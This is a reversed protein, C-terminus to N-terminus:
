NSGAEGSMTGDFKGTHTLLLPNGSTDLLVVNLTGTQSLEGSANKFRGTGGTATVQYTETLHGLFNADICISGGTIQVPLLSGDSFRFIGEGGDVPLYGNPCANTTGAFHDARMGDYTFQGLSGNGTLKEECTDPDGSVNFATVIEPGSSKMTVTNDQTNSNQGARARGTNSERAWAIGALLALAAGAVLSTKLISISRSKM